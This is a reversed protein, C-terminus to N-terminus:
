KTYNKNKLKYYRDFISHPDDFNDLMIASGGRDVFDKVYELTKKAGLVDQGVMDFVINNTTSFTAFLELWKRYNGALTNIRTELQVGDIEFLKEIWISDSNVHKDLYNEITKTFFLSKLKNTEIFREVFEFKQIVALSKHTSKKTLLDVLSKELDFFHAGSYLCIGIMEDKDLHFEPIWFGNLDFGKSEVIM